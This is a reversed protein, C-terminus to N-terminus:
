ANRRASPAPRPIDIIVSRVDLDLDRLGEAQSTLEAATAERDRSRALRRRRDASDNWLGTDFWATVYIGHRLGERVLYDEALQTRMATMLDPHWNGKLEIRCRAPEEHQGRTVPADAQIDVALGHRTTTDWARVERNIVVGSRGLLATLEEALWAAVVPEDKPRWLVTRGNSHDNWLIQGTRILPKAAEVIAHHVLETLDVSGRVLRTRSDELLRALDEARVPSWDLARRLEEAERALDALFPLRPRSAALQRLVGVAEATGRRAIESLVGDRWHQAQQEPGIFGSTWHTGDPQYPWYRALIDWLEGLEGVNLGVTLPGPDNVLDLLVARLLDPTADLEGTLKKWCQPDGTALGVAAARAAHTATESAGTTTASSIIGWAATIGPGCAHRALMAVLVTLTRRLSHLQQDVRQWGQQGQGPRDAALLTALATVASDLSSTLTEAVSINFVADLSELRHPWARTALHGCILRSILGPLDASASQALRALLIQRPSTDASNAPGEIATLIVPAWLDLVPEALLQVARGPPQHRILFVLALYGAHADLRLRDPRDLIDPGPPTGQHLYHWAADHMGQQWGQPPLLRIGPRSALDDDVAAVPSGSDPDIYLAHVLAPFADAETAARQYLSVVSVAHAPADAWGALPPRMSDYIKRQQAAAESGLVVPAFWSAFAPWLPTDRAQWAADQADRDGSDYIGRLLPIWTTAQEPGAAEAAELAWRLDPPGLLGRRSPLSSSKGRRVAESHREQAPRSPEWGWILRHVPPGAQEHKLLQAALLRRLRRSESTEAGTHDREDLEAPVPLDRGRQLCRAALAAAPGIVANVDQCAFARDLLSEALDDDDLGPGDGTAPVGPGVTLDPGGTLVWKLMHPMDDDSLLGPLRKRFIYYAGLMNDRRPPTLSKALAEASLHCPWLVSLAIGRIEDDPDREPHAIIETLASALVPAAMVEDLNAATRAAVARLEHGLDPRATVKLVLNIVDAPDAQRALMLALYSRDRDPQPAAPDALVELVPVLQGALGPHTLNWGRRWGLGIFTRPSALLHDVLTHRIEPVDIITGHVTLVTLDADEAWATNAPQLALLWAATERLAPIIGAGNEGSVTLMTRLQAAPLQRSALHRGALYAAFRAHAPVRRNPGSSAFLASRLAAGILPWTVEFAGGTQREQGGVLAHADLDGDPMEGPPGTWFAARGCVLLYCCLRAAVALVQGPPAVALAPDRDPDPEGALALLATEYLESVPGHLMGDAAYQRILLDLTLPFSALPGTGTRAVAGLFDEPPMNRSGALEGVDRRRLPALEYRAFGPFAGALLEHVRGPYEASRCGILLRLTSTDVEELLQGLLGTVAKGAGSVPCEELGDLVLTVQGGCSAESRVPTIVRDRFVMTDTIEGMPVIIVAWQASRADDSGPLREVIAELATTKGAGPEGLLCFSGAAALSEVRVLGGARGTLLGPAELMGLDDLFSGADGYGPAVFREVRVPFRAPVPGTDRKDGGSGPFTASAFHFEHV